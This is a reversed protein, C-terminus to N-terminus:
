PAIFEEAVQGFAVFRHKSPAQRPVSIGNELSDIDILGPSPNHRWRRWSGHPGLCTGRM